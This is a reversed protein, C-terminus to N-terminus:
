GVIDRSRPVLVSLILEHVKSHASCIRALMVVHKFSGKQSTGGIELVVVSSASVLM